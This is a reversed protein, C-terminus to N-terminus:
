AASPETTHRFRFLAYTFPQIRGAPTIHIEGVSNELTFSSGLEASLGPADYRIVPLGSCRTPGDPAFTALIMHGGPKIQRRARELYRSRDEPETLFHFVARDHWLDVADAEWQSTVDAEIWRVRDAAPGLRVRARALAAGSVDLVSVCTLGRAILRDM